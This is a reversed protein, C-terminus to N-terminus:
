KKIIKFIKIEINNQVLNLFYIGGSLTEVSITTENSLVKQISILKGDAEYLSCSLNDLYQEDVKLTVYAVTPNPYVSVSLNILPNDIGVTYFEFPQQIGQNESGTGSTNSVYDIQGVSYSVSGGASSADGGASTAGQQAFMNTLGVGILFLLTLQFNKRLM